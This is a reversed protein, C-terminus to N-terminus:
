FIDNGTNTKLNNGMKSKIYNIVRYPEPIYFLPRAETRQQELILNGYGLINSLIGHREINVKTLQSINIIEIDERIFLTNQIIIINDGSIIIISNYYAVLDIILIAVVTNITLILIFIISWYLISNDYLKIGDKYNIIVLIMILFIHFLIM